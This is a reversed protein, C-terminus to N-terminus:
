ARPHHESYIDKLRGKSLHTYLQTTSIDEHGLMEQVARLDAGNELLHTAFSHRLTHPTIHKEIKADGAMQRIVKFFGQRSLPTGLRNVFLKEHRKNRMLELRATGAYREIAECAPKGIPIIREKQGKGYVRVFGMQPHVDGLNLGCLESVRLGTAYLCELMAKNRRALPTVGDAAELLADVEDPRLVEPLKKETRPQKLQESPDYDTKKERVLFQHFSRVSSTLRALTAQSKGRDHLRTMYASVDSATVQQWSTYGEAKLFQQYGKLDRAYSRVTHDSLGREVRIYHFFDDLEDQM